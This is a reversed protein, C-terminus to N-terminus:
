RHPNPHWLELYLRRPDIRWRGRGARHLVDALSVQRRPSRRRPTPDVGIKDLAFTRVADREEDDFDDWTAVNPRARDDIVPDRFLLGGPDIAYERAFAANEAEFRQMLLRAEDAALGAFPLDSQLLQPLRRSRLGRGYLAASLRRRLASSILRNAEIYKAGRRSRNFEIGSVDLDGAGLQDLFHVLLGQPMRSRELPVVCVREGFVARWPALAHRYNLWPHREVPNRAFSAAVFADFPMREACSAIWQTYRSELFQCQPRVYAIIRVRRNCDAAMAALAEPRGAKPHGLLSENSVLFQPAQSRRLQSAVARWTESHALFRSASRTAKQRREKQQRFMRKLRPSVEGHIDVPLDIGRERLQPAHEALMRQISTSGAKPMGIHLILQREGAAKPAVM